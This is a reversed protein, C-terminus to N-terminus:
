KSQVTVRRELNGLCDSLNQMATRTKFMFASLTGGNKETLGTLFISIILFNYVLYNSFWKM